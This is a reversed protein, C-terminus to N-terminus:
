ATTVVRIDGTREIVSVSVEGPTRSILVSVKAADGLSLNRLTLNDMFAPLDPQDFRVARAGPDFSLGLCAQVFAPFAAAAWAQPTCAVPYSTPGQNPRRRFGCFLEPLRRLDMSGSAAFIGEFLRMMEARQGARSMGLAILGNDHPWVSGNHYSMPNYRVEDAALTRIGWGTFFRPHMLGESVRRGREPAAIATMLLQGANSSRVECPRGEGDLALAYTGLRECWFRAEFAQRLHEAKATLGAALVDLGLRQAISAGAKHAAFIYGQVECLAIAGRALTGDAHSIADYSDKWGQNALGDDTSREYSVFGDADAKHNIWALALEIHPWLAKLTAVDGTRDLYAGALMVFLPTADISGYYRRFPVEGLAAMEGGRMEHLIKGPEAERAPDFDTAQEQALYRLVGRALAPDLALMLLATILADRGFATSFWPIGAYPYPGTSKETVLMRLDDASRRVTEDFEEHRSSISAARSGLARLSRKTQVYASLFAARPGRTYAAGSTCAVELFITLQGNPGLGLDFVAGYATLSQPPPEFTLRTTRVQGDLGRYSLSVRDSALVTPLRKGHHDRHMGRVEFLDAFDAEFRLELRVRSSIGCFSRIALRGHCTGNGLFLSRQVHIVGQDLTVAELDANSANSFDSTLMVNDAGLTSSLLLPRMGGLTLDFRSLYRTDQHYLGDAGGLGSLIDGGHDFVGFTDGRKLTRYRREQLSVTASVSFPEPVQVAPDAIQTPPESM